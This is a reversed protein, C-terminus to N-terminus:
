IVKKCKWKKHHKREGTSVRFMNGAQLDHSECFTHLGNVIHINGEPDTIEWKDSNKGIMSKRKKDKTEKSDPARLNRAIKLSAKHKASKPKDKLSASIRDKQEQTRKQGRTKKVIKDITAQLLGGSSGDGGMTLNYGISNDYSKYHDIWYMERENLEDADKCIELTIKSFNERGYKDIAHNLAIGSGYYKPNNKSDKGIYIKGNIINTTKYIIM